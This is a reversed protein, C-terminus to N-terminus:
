LSRKSNVEYKEGTMVSQLYDDDLLRLIAWKDKPDFVVKMKGDHMEVKLNLKMEKIATRIDSIKIRSLYPQSAINKLKKLMHLHGLCASELQEFNHIPITTKITALTESAAKKVQKFFQFVIEFQGKNLIFLDDGRCLCDIGRDFVLLSENFRDYQNGSFYIAIKKSQSLEIKSSCTRFCFIPKGQDPQLVIVYFRLSSVLDINDAFRALKAINTLGSIQDKIEPQKSLDLHEIEHKDLKAVADYSRIAFNGSDVNRKKSALISTVVSSFEATVSDTVTLRHYEPNIGVAGSSSALCINTMCSSADVALLEEFSDRLSDREIKEAM